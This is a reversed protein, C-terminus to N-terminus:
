IIKILGIKDGTGWANFLDSTNHIVVAIWGLFFLRRDRVHFFFLCIAYFLLAWIPTLFISHTIGRHWMQYLGETDWLQSIVDSDPILSAGVTTFLYARKTRRDMGDKHISGYLSLGFLTHTITDM